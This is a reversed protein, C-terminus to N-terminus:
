GAWQSGFSQTTRGAASPFFLYSPGTSGWTTHTSTEGLDVFSVFSRRWTRTSITTRPCWQALVTLSRLTSSLGVFPLTSPFDCLPVPRLTFVLWTPLSRRRALCRRETQLTLDM